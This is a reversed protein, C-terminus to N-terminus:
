GRFKVKKLGGGVMISLNIRKHRAQLMLERYQSKPDWRNEGNGGIHFVLHFHRTHQHCRM